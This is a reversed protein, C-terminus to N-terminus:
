QGLMERLNPNNKALRAHTKVTSIGIGMETAIEEYNINQSRYWCFMFQQKPLTAQLREYLIREDESHEINALESPTRIQRNLEYRNAEYTYEGKKRSKEDMQDHLKLSRLRDKLHQRAPGPAKQEWDCRKDIRQPNFTPELLRDIFLVDDTSQKEAGIENLFVARAKYDGRYAERALLYLQVNWRPVPRGYSDLPGQPFHRELWDLGSAIRGGLTGLAAGIEAVAKPVSTIVDSMGSIIEPISQIGTLTLPKAPPALPTHINPLSGGIDRTPLFLKRDQPSSLSKELNRGQAYLSNEFDRGQVYLEELERRPSSFDAEALSWLNSHSGFPTYTNRLLPQKPSSQPPALAKVLVEGLTPM